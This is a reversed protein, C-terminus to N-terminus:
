PKAKRKYLCAGKVILYQAIGYTLMVAINAFSFAQYFRNIALLSDSVVFLAAGAALLKGAEKNRSYLMHLALVLMFSIVLGYIIVPMKMDGLHSSLLMILGGYYGAVPLLLFFNGKIGERTRIGHFFLIYFVHALLFASLGFLFFDPMKEQFMLLVDGAWSFFLALLVWKKLGSEVKGTCALFYLMLVPMLLPKSIYQLLANGIEGGTINVLLLVFFFIIFGKKKM